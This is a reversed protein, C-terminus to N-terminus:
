KLDDISCGEQAQLGLGKQQKKALEELEKKVDEKSKTDCDEEAKATQSKAFTADQGIGEAKDNSHDSSNCSIFSLFLLTLICHKMSFGKEFYHILNNKKDLPRQL